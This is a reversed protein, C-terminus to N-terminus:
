TDVSLRASVTVSLERARFRRDLHVAGGFRGSLLDQHVQLNKLTYDQFEDTARTLLEGYVGLAIRLGHRELEGGAVLRVSDEATIHQLLNGTTDSPPIYFTRHGYFVDGTFRGRDGGYEVRLSGYYQ